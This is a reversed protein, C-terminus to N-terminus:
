WQAVGRAPQYCEDRQRSHHLSRRGRWLTAVDQLGLPGLHAYRKTMMLSEHGLFEAVDELKAGKQRLRSAATHRLNMWRFAELKADKM